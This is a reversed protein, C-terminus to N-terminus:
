QINILDGNLEEESLYEADLITTKTEDPVYNESLSYPFLFSGLLFTPNASHLCKFQSNYPYLNDIVIQDNAAKVAAIYPEVTSVKLGNIHDLYLNVDCDQAYKAFDLITSHYLSPDGSHLIFIAETLNMIKMRDFIVQYMSISRELVKQYDPHFTINNYGNVIPSFDVVVKLNSETIFEADTLAKSDSINYIYDADIKIGALKNEFDPITAIFTKIDKCNNARIIVDDNEPNVAWDDPLTNEAINVEVCYTQADTDYYQMDASNTEAAVEWNNTESTEFSSSLIQANLINLTLLGILTFFFRQTKM